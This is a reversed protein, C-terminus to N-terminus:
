GRPPHSITHEQTHIHLIYTQMQSTHIYIYMHIYINIHAYVYVHIYVCGPITVSRYIFICSPRHLHPYMATNYLRHLSFATFKRVQPFDAGHPYARLWRCLERVWFSVASIWNRVWYPYWVAVGQLGPGGHAPVQPRPVTTWLNWLRTHLFWSDEGGGAKGHSAGRGLLASQLPETGLSPLCRATPFASLLILSHAPVPSSECQITSYGAHALMAFGVILLLVGMQCHCCWLWESERSDARARANVRFFVCPALRPWRHLLWWNMCVDCQSHSLGKKFSTQRVAIQVWRIFGLHKWIQLACLWMSVCGFWSEARNPTCAPQLITPICVPSSKPQVMAGKCSDVHVKLRREEGAAPQTLTKLIPTPLEAGPLSEATWITSHSRVTMRSVRSFIKDKRFISCHEVHSPTTAVRTYHQQKSSSQSSALRWSQWHPSIQIHHAPPM